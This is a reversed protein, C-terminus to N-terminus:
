RLGEKMTLRVSFRRSRVSSRGTRTVDESVRVDIAVKQRYVRRVAEEFDRKSTRRRSLDEASGVRHHKRLIAHWVDKAVAYLFGPTLYEIIM